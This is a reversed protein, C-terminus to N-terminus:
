AAVTAGLLGGGGGGGGAARLPGTAIGLSAGGAAALGAMGSTVSTTGASGFFAPPGDPRSIPQATAATSNSTRPPSPPRAASTYERPPEVESVFAAEALPVGDAGTACFSGTRPGPGAVGTLM